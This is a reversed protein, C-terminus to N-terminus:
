YNTEMGLKKRKLKDALNSWGIVAAVTFYPWFQVFYRSRCEFLILFLSQGLLTINVVAIQLSKKTDLWQLVLGILIFMWLIQALITYGCPEFFGIGYFQKLAENQGKVEIFYSGEIRYTGTGDSYNSLTKRVVQKVVGGPGMKRIRQTFIDINKQVREDYSPISVSFDNDSQCYGGWTEENWGMMLFHAMSMAYEPVITIEESESAYTNVRDKIVNTCFVGVYLLGLFM